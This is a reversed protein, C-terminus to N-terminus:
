PEYASGGVTVTYIREYVCEVVFAHECDVVVALSADVVSLNMFSRM